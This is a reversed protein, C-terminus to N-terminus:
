TGAPRGVTKVKALPVQLSGISLLTEGGTLDVSDVRGSIETRVAV